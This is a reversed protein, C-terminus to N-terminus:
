PLTLYILFSKLQQMCLLKRLVILYLVWEKKVTTLSRTLKKAENQLRSFM